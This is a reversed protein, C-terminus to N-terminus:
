NIIGANRLATENIVHAMVEDMGMRGPTHRRFSIDNFLSAPAPHEEGSRAYKTALEICNLGTLDLARLEKALQLVKEAEAKMTDTIPIRCGESIRKDIADANIINDDQFIYDDAQIPLGDEDATIRRQLEDAQNWTELPIETPANRRFSEALYSPISLRIIHKETMEVIIGRLGDSGERAVRRIYDPNSPLDTKKLLARIDKYHGDLRVLQEKLINEWYENYLFQIGGEEVISNFDLQHVM